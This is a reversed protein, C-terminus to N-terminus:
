GLYDPKAVTVRSWKNMKVSGLIGHRHQKLLMQQTGTVLFFYKTEKTDM